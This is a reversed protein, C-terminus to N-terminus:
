SGDAELRQIRLRAAEGVPGDRDLEIAQVWDARAADPQGSELALAGRELWLAPLKPALKEAQQLDAGAVRREGLHRRASARLVLLEADPEGQSLAADLDSVAGSWDGTEAKLRASLAMAPRKDKALRLAQDVAARSPAVADLELFIEGAEVLMQARVEDPLSRDTAAIDVLLRAASSNAGLGLLALARCHRAASGGGARIWRQAELEAKAPDTKALAVCDDYTEGVADGTGVVLALVAIAMRMQRM